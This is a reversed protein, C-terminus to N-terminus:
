IGCIGTAGSNMYVDVCTQMPPCGGAGPMKTQWDALSCSYHCVNNSCVQGAGCDNLFECAGGEPVPADSSPSCLSLEQDPDTLRCQQNEPCDNGFLICAKSLNCAWVNGGGVDINVNCSASGCLEQPNSRCCYPACTFFVCALGAGCEKNDVCNAGVGKVGTQYICTTASGSPVCMEGPNKCDQKILSCNTEDLTTDKTCTVPLGSSSVASGAGGDGGAGQGGNGGDTSSSSSSGGTGEDEGFLSCGGVFGFCLVFGALTFALISPASRLELM